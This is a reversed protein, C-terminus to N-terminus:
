PTYKDITVSDIYVHGAATASPVAYATETQLVWTMPVTPVQGTDDERGLEQGDLIFKILGPTWETVATHWNGDAYRTASEVIECNATPNGPCHNFGSIDSDLDGEPFDIEGCDWGTRNGGCTFGDDPWLLWATKYGAVPDAKFTITYRGYLQGSWAPKGPLIPSPAAVRAQGNVTRLFMDLAGDHVSLVSDSYTGTCATDCFGDYNDWTSGYGGPWTAAPVTFDETFIRAFPGVPPSTTTTTPATTSVSSTTTTPPAVTEGWAQFEALGVAYTSNSVSGVTFRVWSVTRAAFAVDKASGNNSLAGVAVPAGSSFSVTGSRVNDQQNPRDFLTVKSLSVPQAWSLQVWGSRQLNTAWEHAYNGNPHGDTFGDKVKAATQSYTTYESSATATAAPALNTPVANAAPPSVVLAVAVLALVAPLAAWRSRKSGGM